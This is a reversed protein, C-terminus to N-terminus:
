GPELGAQRLFGDLLSRLDETAQKVETRSAAGLEAREATERASLYTAVVEREEGERAVPDGVAYGNAELMREVLDAYQSVAADPDADADEAISAWESEWAHLDGGGEDWSVSMGGNTGTETSRL